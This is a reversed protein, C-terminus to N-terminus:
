VGVSDVGDAVAHIIRNTSDDAVNNAKKWLRRIQKELRRRQRGKLYSLRGKLRNIKVLIERHRMNHFSINGASDDTVALHKGGVDVGRDIGTSVHRKPVMGINIHIEFKREGPITRKDTRAVLKFSSMDWYHYIPKTTRAVGIGPLYLEHSGRRIPPSMYSLIIRDRRHPINDSGDEFARRCAVPAQLIAGRGYNAPLERLWELDRRWKTM